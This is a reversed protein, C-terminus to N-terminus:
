PGILERHNSPIVVQMAARDLPHAFHLGNLVATGQARIDSHNVACSFSETLPHMRQRVPMSNLLHHDQRNGAHLPVLQTSAYALMPGQALLM